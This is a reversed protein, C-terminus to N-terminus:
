VPTLPKFRATAFDGGDSMRVQLRTLSNEVGNCPDPRRVNMQREDEADLIATGFPEVPGEDFQGV